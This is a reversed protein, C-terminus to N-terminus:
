RMDVLLNQNGWSFPNGKSNMNPSQFAHWLMLAAKFGDFAAELSGVRKVEAVGTSKHFRVVMAQIESLPIDLKPAPSATPENAIGPTSKDVTESGSPSALTSFMRRPPLDSSM